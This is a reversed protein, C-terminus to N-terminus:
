TASNGDPAGALAWRGNADKGLVLQFTTVWENGFSDSYFMKGNVYGRTVGSELEQHLTMQWAPRNLKNSADLQGGPGITSSSGLTHEKTIEGPQFPEDAKWIALHAATHVQYAPTQGYNKFILNVIFDQGRIEPIAKLLLVYPRLQRVATREAVAASEQAASAAAEAARGARRAERMHVVAVGLLGATVLFLAAVGAALFLTYSAVRQSERLQRRELTLREAREQQEEIGRARDDATPEAPLMRVYLPNAPTLGQRAAAAEAPRASRQKAPKAKEAAHACSLALALSLALVIRPM